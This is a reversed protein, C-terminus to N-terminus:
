SGALAQRYLQEMRTMEADQSAREVVVRRGQEAFARKRPQPLALASEIARALATSDGPTVLWGNVEPVIWERVSPLDSAIIPSGSAMAELVSVPTTDSSPVSLTVAAERYLEPMQEHPISPVFRVRPLLGAARLQAEVRAQYSPEAHYALFVLHLDPHKGAVEIFSQAITQGNYLPRLIRPSVLVRADAPIQWSARLAGSSAAPAFARTDVGFQVLQVTDRRGILERLRDVAEQSDGTNLRARRLAWRNWRLDRPARGFLDSGWTTTVIRPFGTLAAVWANPVLFHAHLLDPRFRKIEARVFAATHLLSVFPWRYPDPAGSVLPIEPHNWSDSPLSPVSILRVEHRRAFWGVWRLTHISSAHALYLIRLPRPASM